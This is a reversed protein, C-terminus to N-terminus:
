SHSVSVKDVQQFKVFKLNIDAIYDKATLVFQQDPTDSEADSFGM